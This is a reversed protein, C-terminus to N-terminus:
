AAFVLDPSAKLRAIDRMPPAGFLRSYERSFQSPSEYGVRYGATAADVAGSLIMRRAEQLRLQKQYQLPSMTTVAKFHQHLASSSMRAEAAVAEISFPETYHRRIWSIARGIQQLKSDACAIQRLRDAQEGSLLRYLIEREALPALIPIDRPAALLRLLRNAADVVEPTLTSLALGSGPHRDSVGNGSKPGTPGVELLLAALVAPDLDLRLCLYPRDASAELIQGVVPLDVSVVLYQSRDYVYVTRGVMVQKRGQAVICLAPQHLAHLPETPRSSRILYARAIATPHVGDERTNRAILDALEDHPSMGTGGASLRYEM